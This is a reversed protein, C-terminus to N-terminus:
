LRTSLATVVWSSFGPPALAPPRLPLAPPPGPLTPKSVELGAKEEAGDPAATQELSYPIGRMKLGNEVASRLRRGRGGSAAPNLIVVLSPGEPYPQVPNM